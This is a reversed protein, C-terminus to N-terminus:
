TVFQVGCVWRPSEGLRGLSPISPCQSIQGSSLAEAGCWVVSKCWKRNLAVELVGVRLLVDVVRQPEQLGDLAAEAVELARPEVEQAVVVDVDQVLALHQRADLVPPLAAVVPAVVGEVVQQGVAAGVGHPAEHM